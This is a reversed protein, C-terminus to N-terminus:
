NHKANIPVSFAFLRSNFEIKRVGGDTDTNFSLKDDTIDTLKDLALQGVKKVEAKVDIKNVEEAILEPVTPYYDTNQVRPKVPVAALVFNDDLPNEVISVSLNTKLPEIYEDTRNPMTQISALKVPNSNKAKNELEAFSGKQPEILISPIPKDQIVPVSQAVTEITADQPLSFWFVIGLLVVAATALWFPMIKHQHMLNNKDPYVVLLDPESITSKFTSYETQAAKHNKLYHQFEKEETNSLDNEISRICTENFVDAQDYGSKLLSQYPYKTLEEVPLHISEMGKLEKALDPNVRLFDLLEDVMENSLTGDLLDIFFPEYNERNIKM